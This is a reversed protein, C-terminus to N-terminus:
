EEAKNIKIKINNSSPISNIKDTVLYINQPFKEALLYKGDKESIITVKNKQLHNDKVTYIYAGDPLLYVMNQKIWFGNKIEREVLVDVYAGSTLHNNPNAFDAYIAMSGTSRNIANDSFKFEGVLPYLSNDSLRLKIKEGSFLQKGKQRSLAQLYEKDTLSFVVRIPDTQIISILSGSNPSVYNGQTLDVNGVVGDIPAQLVTYDYMVSAKELNAQAAGVEAKASLYKAKANDVETKSIAKSGAKKIRQYYVEANALNAEAQALNAKAADLAAKYERQDILLLNDGYKVKQGGKVWIDQIYGSVNPVLNVSKIPTVYGVHTTSLITDYSKLPIVNLVLEKNTPAIDSHAKPIFVIYGLGFMFIAFFVGLGSYFKSGSITAM